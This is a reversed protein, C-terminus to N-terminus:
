DMLDILEYMRELYYEDELSFPTIYESNRKYSVPCNIYMLVYNDVGLRSMVNVPMDFPIDVKKLKSPKITSVSSIDEFFTLIGDKIKVGPYMQPSVTVMGQRITVILEGVTHMANSVLLFVYDGDFSLDMPTFMEYGKTLDDRFMIFLPGESTVFKGSKPVKTKPKGPNVPVKPTKDEPIEPPNLIDDLVDKPVRPMKPPYKTKPTPTPIIKIFDKSPIKPKPTPTPFIKILDKSPIKLKPTPTPIIKILDPNIKTAYVIPVTLTILMVVLLLLSLTKKM